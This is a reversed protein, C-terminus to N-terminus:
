KQAPSEMNRVCALTACADEGTFDLVAAGDSAQAVYVSIKRTYKAPCRLIFKSM